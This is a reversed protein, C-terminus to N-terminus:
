EVTLLMPREYLRWDCPMTQPGRPDRCTPLRDLLEMGLLEIPPRLESLLERGKLTVTLDRVREVVQQNEVKDLPVLNGVSQVIWELDQFADQAGSPLQFFKLVSDAIEDAEAPAAAVVQLVVGRLGARSYYVRVLQKRITYAEYGGIIPDYLELKDPARLRMVRSLREGIKVEYHPQVTARFDQARDILIYPSADLDSITGQVVPNGTPELAEGIRMPPNHEVLLSPARWSQIMGYRIYPKQPITRGLLPVIRSKPVFTQWASLGTLLAGKLREELTM